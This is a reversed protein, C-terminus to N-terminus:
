TQTTLTEVTSPRFGAGGLFGAIIRIEQLHWCKKQHGMTEFHQLFEDVWWDMAREGWMGQDQGSLRRGAVVQQRHGGPGSAAGGPRPRWVSHPTRNASWFGWVLFTWNLPEKHQSLIAGGGFFLLLGPVWVCVLRVGWPMHIGNNEPELTRPLGLNLNNVTPFDVGFCIFFPLLRSELASFCAFARTFCSLGRM